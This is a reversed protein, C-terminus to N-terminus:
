VSYIRSPNDHFWMKAIDIARDERFDGCSVRKALAKAVTERAMVLHGYVKQVCCVYDGGFAIIKNLPVLDIMEDIADLTARQSLLYTLL